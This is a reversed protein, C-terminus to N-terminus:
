LTRWQLLEIVRSGHHFLPILVSLCLSLSLRRRSRIRSVLLRLEIQLVSLCLSVLYILLVQHPKTALIRLKCLILEVVASIFIRSRSLIFLLLILLFLVVPFSLELESLLLRSDGVTESLLRDVLTAASTRATSLRTATM